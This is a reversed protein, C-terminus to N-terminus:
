CFFLRICILMYRIWCDSLWKKDKEKFSDSQQLKDGDTVISLRKKKQM